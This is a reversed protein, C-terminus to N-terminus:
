QVTVRTLDHRAEEGRERQSAGSRHQMEDEAEGVEIIEDEESSRTKLREM